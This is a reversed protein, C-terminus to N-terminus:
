NLAYVVGLYATRGPWPHAVYTIENTLNDIGFNASIRQNFQYNTKIGIRTYADQAAYVHDVRDGNDLRGYSDSSYQLNVGVNWDDGVHYTALLNSRWRPMRPYDNGEFLPNARNKEITSQTWTANFRLDLQPIFLGAQNVIFEAGWTQTKDVPVFTDRRIIPDNQSEIADRITEHFVNLRVYGGDISRDFMLNHHLGNEPKLDPNALNENTYNQYQRFLEEIIPFRYAKAASYRILWRDNLHYGVSFKPSSKTKEVSPIDLSGTYYGDRSAFIEHRLGLALDVKDSISWNGQAFLANIETKGGFESELGNKIGARYDSSDYLDLNLRYNEHRLGTIFELDNLLFNDLKLKIEATQWGSHNFEEIQGDSTYQPDAPNWESRRIRDKLIDFQNINTELYAEENLEGKIRLGASLSQRDLFSEGLLSSDIAFQQGDQVLDDGRWLTSNAFDRVYSNAADTESRRDEYAINLLTQWQGFDYGLKFKVNDTTTGVVGTDGYWLQVNNRADPGLIGGSVSDESSTPVTSKGYFSQPQSESDLHNLSLYYSLDGVKDGGSIFSKHGTMIDDFGYAKFQQAFVTSDVRLQKKQPIATEILVVGGMANGSYEASFPGYLVEVQKIESASVMTWRPAGNWRSQLLYHLPVGDAFVMSRSTQFMNAGRMGMTGNADGIFRKRVILAPEFKVLDETTTANISLMDQPGLVSTPSSYGAERSERRTGWVHTEEINQQKNHPKEKVSGVLEKASISNTFIFCLSLLCCVKCSIM